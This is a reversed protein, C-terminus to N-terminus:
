SRPPPAAAGHRWSATLRRPPAAENCTGSSLPGFRMACGNAWSRRWGSVWAASDPSATLASGGITALDVRIVRHSIAGLAAAVQEAAALEVRHRQGYDFAVTHCAWGQRRVAWALATSSDLGGSLLVVATSM